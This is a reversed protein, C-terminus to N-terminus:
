PVAEDARIVTGSALTIRYDCSIIVVYALSLARLAERFEGCRGYVEDAAARPPGAARGGDATEGARDGPGAEHRVGADGPDRGDEQAGSGGGLVQAHVRRLRDLGARARHGLAAFVWTVFNEVKGTVGAHQPAM